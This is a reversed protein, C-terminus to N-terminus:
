EANLDKTSNFDKTSVPLYVTFCSGQGVQSDVDIWGNHEQVIGYAISLGLGTGQGVDKTTFFPEFIHKLNERDIGPGNDSIAVTAFRGISGDNSKVLNPNSNEKTGVVVNIETGDPSAQAANVLLNTIVQRIQDRDVQVHIPNPPASMHIRSGTKDVLTSILEITNECLPGLEIHDRHPKTPRAFDLLQRITLTIRDAESKITQASLVVKSEDMKSEAILAARGSIVGLPTGIEHAIGAALRGVTKLRDAHRLQSETEKRHRAEEEIEQQQKALRACMENIAQGLQGLEDKGSIEVPNSFDGQGVRHTKQTLLELPQAVIRVSTLLIIGIALLAILGIMLITQFITENAYQQVEALSSTFEVGGKRQNGVELQLYTHLERRGDRRTVMHLMQDDSELIQQVKKQGARPAYNNNSEGEEEDFWVWRSKVDTNRSRDRILAELKEVGGAEWAEQLDRHLNDVFRKAYEKQRLEASIYARRATLYSMAVTIALIAFVFVLILKLALKM